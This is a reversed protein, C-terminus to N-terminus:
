LRETSWSRGVCRRGTGGVAMAGEGGGSGRGNGGGKARCCCERARSVQMIWDGGHTFSTYIHIGMGGEVSKHKIVLGGTGGPQLFPSVPVGKDAGEILFM